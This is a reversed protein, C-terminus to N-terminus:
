LTELSHLIGELADLGEDGLSRMVDRQAEAWLPKARELTKQGTESLELRCDRTRPRRTDIVLAQRLLPQLNRALTSRDLETMDALERINCQTMRSINVLVSYQSVTIGCPSLMRNYHETVSATARRIKLCYCSTPTKSQKERMDKELHHIYMMKINKKAFTL